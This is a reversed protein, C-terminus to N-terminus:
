QDAAKNVPVSVAAGQIGRRNLRRVKSIAVVSTAITSPSITISLRCYGAGEHRAKEHAYFQRQLPWITTGLRVVSQLMLYGAGICHPASAHPCAVVCVVSGGIHIFHSPSPASVRYWLWLIGLRDPCRPLAQFCRDTHAPGPVVHMSVWISQSWHPPIPYTMRWAFLKRAVCGILNRLSRIAHDTTHPKSQRTASRTTPASSNSAHNRQCGLGCGSQSLHRILNRLATSCGLQNSNQHQHTRMGITM